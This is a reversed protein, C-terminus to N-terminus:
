CIKATFISHFIYSRVFVSKQCKTDIVNIRIIDSKAMPDFLLQNKVYRILLKQRIETFM